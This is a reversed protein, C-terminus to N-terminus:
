PVEVEPLSRLPRKVDRSAESVRGALWSSARKVEDASIERGFVDSLLVPVEEDWTDQLNLSGVCKEDSPYFNIRLSGTTTPTGIFVACDEAICFTVLAALWAKQFDSMTKSNRMERSGVKRGSPNGRKLNAM